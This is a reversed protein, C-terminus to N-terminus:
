GPTISTTCTPKGYPRISKECSDPRAPRPPSCTSESTSRSRPHSSLSSAIRLRRRMTELRSSRAIASNTFVVPQRLSTRALHKSLPKDGLREALSAMRRKADYVYGQIEVLAIPAKALTGDRHRAVIATDGSAGSNTEGVTYIRDGDIATEHPTSTTGDTFDTRVIGTPPAFASQLSLSPPPAAALAPSALAYAAVVMGIAGRRSM